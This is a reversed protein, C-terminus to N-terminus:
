SPNANTRTSSPPANSRPFRLEVNVPVAIEGKVLDMLDSAVKAAETPQDCLPRTPLHAHDSSQLNGYCIKYHVEGLGIDPGIKKAIRQLGHQVVSSKFSLSSNM